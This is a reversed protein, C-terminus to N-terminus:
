GPGTVALQRQGPALGLLPGGDLDQGGDFDEKVLLQPGSWTWMGPERILLAYYGFALGDPFLRASAKELRSLFARDVGNSTIAAADRRTLVATSAGAPVNRQHSTAAKLQHAAHDSHGQRQLPHQLRSSRPVEQRQARKKRTTLPCTQKVTRRHCWHLGVIQVRQASSARRGTDDPKACTGSSIGLGPLGVGDQHATSALLFPDGRPPNGLLGSGPLSLRLGADIGPRTRDPWPPARAVPLRQWSHAISGSRGICRAAPPHRRVTRKTAAV